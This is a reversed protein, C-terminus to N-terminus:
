QELATKIPIPNVELFLNKNLDYLKDQIKNATKFDGKLCSDCLAKMHKPAINATVSITGSAGLMFFIHNLNDEGNYIALKDKALHFLKLIENIDTTAQKIGVINDIESLKLAIEPKINLGTRSPVNYMIIPLKTKSAVEEYHKILGSDNAKNYYPSVVLVGDAGLCEAMITNGIANKTSNSGTGVIMKCSSPILKRAFKIIEKKELLEITSPEGTSGLLIIADTKAELQKRILKELAPYDIKGNKFPTILAVGSGTFLSKM